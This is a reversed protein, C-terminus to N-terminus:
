FTIQEVATIFISASLESNNFMTYITHNGPTQKNFMTYITHNGPTQKNFMTYITHNGPTQKNYAATHSTTYRQVESYLHEDDLIQVITKWAQLLAVVADVLDPSMQRSVSDQFVLVFTRENISYTDSINSSILTSTALCTIHDHQTCIINLNMTQCCRVLSRPLISPPAATLADSKQGLPRPNSHRDPCLWTM